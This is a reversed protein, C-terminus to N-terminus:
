SQTLAELMVGQPSARDDALRDVTVLGGPSMKGGQDSAIAAINEMWSLEASATESISEMPAPPAAQSRVM